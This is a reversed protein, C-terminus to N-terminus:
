APWHGGPTWGRRLLFAEFEPSGTSPVVMLHDLADELLGRRQLLPVREEAMVGVLQGGAVLDLGDAVDAAPLVLDTRVPHPGGVTVGLKVFPEPGDLVTWRGSVVDPDVACPRDDSGRLLAGLQPAVRYADDDLVLVLLPRFTYRGAEDSRHRFPDPQAPSLVLSAAVGIGGACFDQLDAEWPPPPTAELEAVPLPGPEPHGEYMPHEGRLRPEPVAAAKSAVVPPM